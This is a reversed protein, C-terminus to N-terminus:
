NRSATGLAPRPRSGSRGRRQRPVVNGVIATTTGTGHSQEAVGATAAALQEDGGPRAVEVVQQCAPCRIRRGAAADAARHRTECHPCVFVFSV